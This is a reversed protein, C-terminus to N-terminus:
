IMAMKRCFIGSGDCIVGYYPVTLAIAGARDTAKYVTPTVDMGYATQKRRGNKDQRYLPM